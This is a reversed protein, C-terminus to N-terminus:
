FLPESKGAHKLIHMLWALMKNDKKAYNKNYRVSAAFIFIISLYINRRHLITTSRSSNYCPNLFSPCDSSLNVFSFSNIKKKVYARHSNISLPLPLSLSLLLFAPIHFLKGVTFNRRLLTKFFGQLFDVPSLHGRLM